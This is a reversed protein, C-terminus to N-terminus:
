EAETAKKFMWSTFRSKTSTAKDANAEEEELRNVLASQEEAMVERLIAHHASINEARRLQPPAGM